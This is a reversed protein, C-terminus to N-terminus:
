GCQREIERLSATVGRLSFEYVTREGQESMTEVRLTSGRRMASVMAREDFDDAFADPGVTYLSWSERGVRARTPGKARPVHGLSIHPREDAVGSRWTSITAVAQGHDFDRPAADQAPSSAYCVRDGDVSRVYVQWDGHTAVRGRAQADAGATITVCLLTTLATIGLYLQFKALM